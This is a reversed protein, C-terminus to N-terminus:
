RYSLTPPEMIVRTGPPISETLWVNGGVVSGKGIVTEGGLITAGSYIIVDDEITPHRKKNRLAEGANKPLSLAGLTVGQYIRVNEGIETTEGIVVGTGHDIVFRGGIAAGPHIDIGTLGHAYETMTRPMLPIGMEYLKHAIRYVFIAYLGPYSFIIEDHSQAAPDGDFAAQVDTELVDRIEPLADLLALAAEFGRDGCDSCEQDYRMCDHRISNSIQQSLMEFLVTVTRGLVFSLNVPDLREKSFYGPFVVERLKDIIEELNETSPIPDYDVHSICSDKGCNDLIKDVVGPLKKRYKATLEEGVRCTHQDKRDDKM